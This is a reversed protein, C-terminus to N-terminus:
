DRLSRGTLNLFVQELTPREVHFRRLSHEDALRNLEALPDETAMRITRDALEAVLVSQGGHADILQDVTDVALVKGKDVIAVRGCVREAEEMYHTTYVVTTGQDSLKEVLDLIANRSQPDVGATPEDLFLLEPEHMLATAINLRRKMGGSFGGVRDARRDELGVSRLVENAREELARRSLGYLAGFFRLNEQASLESYLSLEQPAVGIRRRIEPDSPEGKGGVLVQGDDPAIMGVAISVTTSKGAGNPGLLGFVEGAKVELSLGAVAVTDGFRKHIDIFELM